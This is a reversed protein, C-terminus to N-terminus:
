VGTVVPAQRTAAGAKAVVKIKDMKSGLKAVEKDVKDAKAGIKVSGADSGVHYPKGESKGSFDVYRVSNMSNYERLVVDAMEDASRFESYNVRIVPIIRSIDKLFDEYAAHLRLLYEMPIGDECARKRSMIRRYSEEPTVDLHVILNPKMMFNSLNSFLSRYTDYEREEMSGEDKLVKAFVTDEYITRDQVGGQGSWIIQQHQQFRRNLLYVQLPFGYRKKDRYFDELYVNDAVPEHYVPLKMKESLANALTTKGAGIMGSISIFINETSEKQDLTLLAKTAAHGASGMM